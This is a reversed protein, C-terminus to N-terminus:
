RCTRIASLVNNLPHNRCLAAVVGDVVEHCHVKPYKAELLAAVDDAIDRWPEPRKKSDAEAKMLAVGQAPHDAPPVPESSGSAQAKAWRNIQEFLGLLENIPKQSDAALERRDVLEVALLEALKRQRETASDGNVLVGSQEASQKEM